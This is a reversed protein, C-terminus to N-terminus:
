KTKKLTPMQAQLDVMDMIRPGMFMYGMYSITKDGDIGNFEMGPNKEYIDSTLARISNTLDTLIKMKRLVKIGPSGTKEADAMGKAYADEIARLQLIATTANSQACGGKILFERQTEEGATLGTKSIPKQLFDM